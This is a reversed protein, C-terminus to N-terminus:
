LKRRLWNYLALRAVQLIELRQLWDEDQIKLDGYLDFDSLFLIGDHSIDCRKKYFQRFKEESKGAVYIKLYRLFRATPRIKEGKGYKSYDLKAMGEISSVISLLSVSRKTDFLDIGDYLLGICQAVINRDDLDLSYYRDLVYELGFPFKIEPNGALHPNNTFYKM